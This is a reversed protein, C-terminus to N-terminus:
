LAVESADTFEALVAAVIEDKTPADLYAAPIKKVAEVAQTINVSVSEGVSVSMGSFFIGNGMGEMFGVMAVVQNSADMILMPPSGDANVGPAEYSCVGTYATGNIQVAFTAGEAFVEQNMTQIFGGLDNGVQVVTVTEDVVTITSQFAGYLLVNGDADPLEGNVSQVTGSGGGVEIEVNGNEDPAVGNVSTVTGSGVEIEINGNEDPVAGNVSQVTGGGVEIEVNGNEDPEVGNVSTVTGNTSEPIDLHATPIKKVIDNTLTVKVAVTDGGSVADTYFGIVAGDATYAIVAISDGNAGLIFLVPINDVFSVSSSCRANYEEGNLLVTFEAGGVLANANLTTLKAGVSGDTDEVTITEEAVVTGAPIKGYLFVNGEANAPTGNVSCAVNGADGDPDIQVNYGDPMEGSGVYVGSVGQSGPEGQIGQEGQPGADGKDGKEGKLGSASVLTDVFEGTASDWEYWNGNEGIYSTKGAAAEAAARHSDAEAAAKEANLASAGADQASADAAAASGAAANESAEAEAASAAAEDASEAAKAALQIDDKIADIQMQLQEAQTPTPDVPDGADDARSSPLVKLRDAVTRRRMGNTYGDIVFSNWGADTMAEGPIPVIYVRTDEAANELLDTTLLRKVIATGKANWFTVTKACNDWNEAFTIRLCTSDSEYQAGACNHDKTITVGNVRVDILRDM